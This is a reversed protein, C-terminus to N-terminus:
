VPVETGRRAAEVRVVPFYPLFRFIASARERLEHGPIDVELYDVQRVRLGIRHAVICEIDVQIGQQLLIGRHFVFHDAVDPELSLPLFPINM